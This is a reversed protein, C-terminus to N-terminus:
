ELVDRLGYSHVYSRWTRMVSELHVHSVGEAESVEMAGVGSRTVARSGIATMIWWRM